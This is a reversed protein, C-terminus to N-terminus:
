PPWLRGVAEQLSHAGHVVGGDLQHRQLRHRGVDGLPRRRDDGYVKKFDEAVNRRETIWKGFEATGSRLVIYTVTGTKESKCITGVPETSDWVYGIIRSRVAEPLAAV